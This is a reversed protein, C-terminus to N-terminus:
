NIIFFYKENRLNRKGLFLNIYCIQRCNGHSYRNNRSTLLDENHQKRFYNDGNISNARVYKREESNCTLTTNEPKGAERHKCQIIDAKCRRRRARTHLVRFYIRSSFIFYVYARVRLVKIEDRFGVRDWWHTYIFIVLTHCCNSM